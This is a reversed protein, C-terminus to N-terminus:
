VKTAAPTYVVTGGHEGDESVDVVVERSSFGIFHNSNVLAECLRSAIMECSNNEFNFANHEVTWAMKIFLQNLKEVAYAKMTHFEVARDLTPVSVQIRFKFLHRHLSRLYAVDIPAKPWRHFGIVSFTCWVQVQSTM